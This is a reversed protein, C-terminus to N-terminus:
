PRAVLRRAQALAHRKGRWDSPTSPVIIIGGRGDREVKIRLHRNMDVIRAAIGDAELMALLERHRKMMRM